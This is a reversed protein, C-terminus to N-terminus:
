YYEGIVNHSNPDTVHGALSHFFEQKNTHRTCDGAEALSLSREIKFRQSMSSQYM